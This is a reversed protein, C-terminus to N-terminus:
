TPTSSFSQRRPHQGKTQYFSVSTESTSVAEMKLAILLGRAFFLLMKARKNLM